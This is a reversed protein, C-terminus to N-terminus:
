LFRQADAVAVESRERLDSTRIVLIRDPYDIRAKEISNIYGRWALASLLPHRWPRDLARALRRDIRNGLHGLSIVFEYPDRETVLFKSQPFAAVIRPLWHIHHPTKEVVHCKGEREAVTLALARFVSSPHVPPQVRAIADEVLLRYDHTGASTLIHRDDQTTTRWDRTRQIELVKTLEQEGYLGDPRPPVYCNGWFSTEGIVAIDPHASLVRGLWTTGSRSMGVIFDIQVRSGDSQSIGSRMGAAGHLPGGRTRGVQISRRDVPLGLHRVPRRARCQTRTVDSHHRLVTGAGAGSPRCLCSLGHGFFRPRGREGRRAWAMGSIRDGDRRDSGTLSGR